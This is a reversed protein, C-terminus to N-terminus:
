NGYIANNSSAGEYHIGNIVFDYFIYFYPEYGIEPIPGLLYNKAIDRISLVFETETKQMELTFLTNEKTAEGDEIYKIKGSYYATLKNDDTYGITEDDVEVSGEGGLAYSKFSTSGDERLIDINLKTDEFEFYFFGYGDFEGTDEDYMCGAFLEDLYYPEEGDESYAYRLIVAKNAELAAKAKSFVEITEETTEPYALIEVNSEGTGGGEFLRFRGSTSDIANTKIYQYVKNDDKCCALFSQPAINDNFAIMEAKTLLFRDDIPETGGIHFGAITNLAM